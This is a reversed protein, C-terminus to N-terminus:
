KRIKTSEREILKTDIQIKLGKNDGKLGRLLLDVAAKGLADKDVRVSSLTPTLYECAPVDDFGMVKLDGPVSIDHETLAKMAGMCLIDNAFISDFRVGDKLHRRTKEFGQEFSYDTDVLMQRKFLNEADEAAAQMAKSFYHHKPGTLILPAECGAKRLHALAKKCADTYNPVAFPAETELPPTSDVFVVNSNVNAIMDYDERSFAGVLLLGCLGEVSLVTQMKLWSNSISNTMLHVHLPCVGAAAAASELGKSVESFFDNAKLTDAAFVLAFCKSGSAVIPNGSRMASAATSPVYGLRSMVNLVKRRTKPAVSGGRMVRTVTMRSVCAEEAVDIISVAM